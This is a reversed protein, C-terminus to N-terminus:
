SSKVGNNFNQKIFLYVEDIIDDISYEPEWGLIEKAKSSVGIRFRVDGFPAPLFKFGPFDIGPNVREWIKIALDLIKLSDKGCINFDENLINKEIILRVARGIDKGHTFTRVQEGDGIIEFPAQKILAKYVLDPIVHAMGFEIDGDKSVVPLEGSGVANFPRVILYKLGFEKNAGRVLYEGFLKQMGYNTFPVLQNM